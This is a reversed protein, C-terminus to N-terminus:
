MKKVKGSGSSNSIVRNPEGSYYVTGSGSIRANIEEKATIYCDGSGSISATFKEVVLDEARVKGSGSIKAEATAAKGKLEISGSGSIRLDLDDASLDLEIDGSGSISIELDESKITGEGKIEGSGSVSVGEINKMTVEISVESKNWGSGWGWSGERKIVLRDGRKDFEIEDLVDEDCSIKVKDSSGQKLTLKAPIGLSISSFDQVDITQQAFASSAVFVLTSLFLTLTRM